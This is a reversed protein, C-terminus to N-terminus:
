EDVPVGVKKSEFPFFTLPATKEIEGSKGLPKDNFEDVPSIVQLEALEKTLEKLEYVMVAVEVLSGHDDKDGTEDLMLIEDIQSGVVVVRV